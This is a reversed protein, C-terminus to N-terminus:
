VLRVNEHKEGLVLEREVQRDRRQACLGECLRHILLALGARPLAGKSAYPCAVGSHGGQWCPNDKILGCPRSRHKWM